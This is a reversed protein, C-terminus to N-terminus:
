SMAALVAADREPDPTAALHALYDDPTQFKDADSNTQKRPTFKNSTFKRPTAKKSPKIKEFKVTLVKDNEEIMEKALLRKVTKTVDSKDVGLAAAVEGRSSPSALLTLYVKLELLTLDSKLIDKSVPVWNGAQLTAAYARNNKRTTKM